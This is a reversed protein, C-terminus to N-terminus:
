SQLTGIQLNYFIRGAFMIFAPLIKKGAFQCKTVKTIVVSRKLVLVLDFFEIRESRGKEARLIVARCTTTERTGLGDTDGDHTFVVAIAGDATALRASCEHVIKFLGSCRM